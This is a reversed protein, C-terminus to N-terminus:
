RCNHLQPAQLCVRVCHVKVDARLSVTRIEVRVRAVDASKLAKCPIGSAGRNGRGGREREMDRERRVGRLGLTMRLLADTTDHAPGWSPGRPWASHGGSRLTFLVPVVLVLRRRTAAM